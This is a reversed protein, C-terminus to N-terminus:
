HEKICCNVCGTCGFLEYRRRVQKPPLAPFIRFVLLLCFFAFPFFCLLAFFLVSSLTCLSAIRKESILQM